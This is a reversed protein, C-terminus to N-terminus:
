LLFNYVDGNPAVVIDETFSFDWALELQPWAREFRYEMDNEAKVIAPNLSCLLFLSYFIYLLLRYHHSM